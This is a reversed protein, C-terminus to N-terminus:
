MIMICICAAYSFYIILMCYLLQVKRRHYTTAHSMISHEWNAQHSATEESYKGSSSNVAVICENKMCSKEDEGSGEIVEQKSVAAKACGSKVENCVNQDGVVDQKSRDDDAEVEIPDRYLKLCALM